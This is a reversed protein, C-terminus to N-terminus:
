SRRGIQAIGHDHFLSFAMPKNPDGRPQDISGFSLKKIKQVSRGDTGGDVRVPHLPVVQRNPLMRAAQPTLHIGEGLFAAVQLMLQSQGKCVVMETAWM